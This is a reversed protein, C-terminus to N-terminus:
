DLGIILKFVKILFPALSCGSAFGEEGCSTCSNVFLM